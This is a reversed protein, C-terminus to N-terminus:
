KKKKEDRYYIQTQEDTCGDKKKEIQDVAVGPDNTKRSRQLLNRQGYM